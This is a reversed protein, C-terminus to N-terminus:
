QLFFNHTSSDFTQSCTKFWGRSIIKLVSEYLFVEGILINVVVEEIM